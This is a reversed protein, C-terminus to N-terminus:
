TVVVFFSAEALEGLSKPGDYRFARYAKDMISLDDGIIESPKVSIERFWLKGNAYQFNVGNKLLVAINQLTNNSKPVCKM